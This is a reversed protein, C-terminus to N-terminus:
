LNPFFVNVAVIIQQLKVERRLGLKELMLIILLKQYNVQSILVGNNTALTLPM